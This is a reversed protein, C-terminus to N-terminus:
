HFFSFPSILNKEQNKNAKELKPPTATANEYQLVMPIVYSDVIGSVKRLTNHVFNLATNSNEAGFWIGVDWAEFISM